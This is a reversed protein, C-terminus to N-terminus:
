HPEQMTRTYNIIVPIEIYVNSTARNQPIVMVRAEVPPDGLEYHGIVEVKAETGDHGYLIDENLSTCYLFVGDAESPIVRIPM